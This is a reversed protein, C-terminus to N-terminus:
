KQCMGVSVTWGMVYNGFELTRESIRPAWAWSIGLKLSKLHSGGSGAAQCPEVIKFVHRLWLSLGYDCVNVFLDIQFCSWLLWGPACLRKVAFRKGPMEQGVLPMMPPLVCPSTNWCFMNSSRVSNFLRPLIQDHDSKRTTLKPIASCGTIPMFSLSTSSPFLIVTILRLWGGVRSVVISVTYQHINHFQTYMCAHMCIYTYM